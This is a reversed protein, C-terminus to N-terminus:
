RSAPAANQKAADVESAQRQARRANVYAMMDVPQDKAPAVEHSPAPTAIVDPVSFSPKSSVSSKQTLVKPKVKVPKPLPKEPEPLPEIVQPRVPPALSVEM